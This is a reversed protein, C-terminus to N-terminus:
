RVYIDTPRLLEEGLTAAMEDFKHDIATPLSRREV